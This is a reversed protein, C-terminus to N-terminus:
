INSVLLEGGLFYYYNSSLLKKLVIPYHIKNIM